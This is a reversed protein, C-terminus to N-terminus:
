LIRATLTAGPGLGELEEALAAALADADPAELTFAPAEALGDNNLTTIEVTM